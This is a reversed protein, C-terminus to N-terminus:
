PLLCASVENLCGLSGLKQSQTPSLWGFGDFNLPLFFGMVTPDALIRELSSSYTSLLTFFYLLTFWINKSFDSEKNKNLKWSESTLINSLLQAQSLTYCWFLWLWSKGLYSRGKRWLGLKDSLRMRYSNRGLLSKLEPLLCVGPLGGKWAALCPQINTAFLTAPVGAIILNM